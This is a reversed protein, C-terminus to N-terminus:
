WRHIRMAIGLRPHMTCLSTLNGGSSAVRMGLFVFILNKVIANTFIGFAWTGFFAFEWLGFFGLLNKSVGMVDCVLLGM